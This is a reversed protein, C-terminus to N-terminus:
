QIFEQEIIPGRHYASFDMEEIFNDYDITNTLFQEFQILYCVNSTFSTQKSQSSNTTFIESIDSFMVLVLRM